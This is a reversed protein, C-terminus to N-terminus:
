KEVVPTKRECPTTRGENNIPTNYQRKTCPKTYKKPM